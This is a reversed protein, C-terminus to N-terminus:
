FVSLRKARKPYLKCRLFILFSFNTRGFVIIPDNRENMDHVSRKRLKCRIVQRTSRGKWNPRIIKQTSFFSSFYLEENRRKQHIWPTEITARGASCTCDLALFVCVFDYLWCYVFVIPLPPSTHHCNFLHVIFLTPCQYPKCEPSLRYPIYKKKLVGSRGLYWVHILCFNWSFHVHILISDWETKSM